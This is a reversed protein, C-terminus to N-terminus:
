ARSWQWMNPWKWPAACSRQLTLQLISGFCHFSGTINWLKFPYSPCRSTLATLLLCPLVRTMGVLISFNIAKEMPFNCNKSERWNVIFDNSWRTFVSSSLLKVCVRWVNLVSSSNWRIFLFPTKGYSKKLSEDFNVHLSSISNGVLSINKLLNSSLSHEIFTLEYEKKRM